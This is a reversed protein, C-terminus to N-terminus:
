QIIINLLTESYHKLYLLLALIHCCVGSLEVPYSFTAKRRMNGQFHIVAPRVTTGYSKQIMGCIYTGSRDQLTEVSIIKRSQLM